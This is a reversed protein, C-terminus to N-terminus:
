VAEIRCLFWSVTAMGFHSAGQFFFAVVTAYETTNRTSTTSGVCYVSDTTSSSLMDASLGKGFLSFHGLSGM